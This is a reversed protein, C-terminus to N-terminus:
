DLNNVTSLSPPTTREILLSPGSTPKMQLTFTHNKDCLECIAQDEADSFFTDTYNGASAALKYSGDNNLLWVTILAKEDAELMFDGDEKGMFSVTWACNTLYVNTDHYQITTTAENPLREAIGTPVLVTGSMTYTPHLDIPEGDMTNTVQFSIRTIANETNNVTAGGGSALINAITTMYATVSGQLELTSRTERLGGYVTEESKESSFVGAALVSYAFVSAVVVFAILIIATEVGTIGKEGRLARRVRRWGLSTVKDRIGCHKRM